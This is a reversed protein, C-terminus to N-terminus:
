LARLVEPKLLREDQRAIVEDLVELLAARDRPLESRIPLYNSAHNASFRCNSFDSGAVIQRLEALLRFKGPLRFEGRRAMADLPTGPVITTTLAGVFPPDMEGLVRGTNRAHAESLKEGGIGLLVM